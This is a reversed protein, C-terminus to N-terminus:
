RDSIFLQKEEEMSKVLAYTEWRQYFGKLFNGSGHTQTTFASQNRAYRGYVSFM